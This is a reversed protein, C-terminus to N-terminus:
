PELSYRNMATFLHMVLLVNSADTTTLIMSLCGACTPSLFLISLHSDKDIMGLLPCCPQVLFGHVSALTLPPGEHLAHGHGVTVFLILPEVM